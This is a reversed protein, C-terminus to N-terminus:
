DGGGQAGPRRGDALTVEVKEARHVVHSNTLIFGDPTIILGSGSGLRRGNARRAEINVVSPGADDAARVVSKSYADLLEEDSEGATASSPALAPEPELCVAELEPGAILGLKGDWNKM